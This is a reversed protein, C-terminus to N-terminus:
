RGGFSAALGPQGALHRDLIRTAVDVSSVLPHLALAEVAKARSGSLAADVALREAARVALILGRAEMPVDGIAAPVIAGRGVIAPVEVIADADLFPLSSRNPVDLIMTRYGGGRMADVLDLALRGYDGSERAAAVGAMADERGLWAEAMYRAEREALTREWDRLADTPSGVGAFFASQQKELYEARVQGGRMAELAASNFYFYYLYENPIMGVSRLWEAGFLRGEEFSELREDDALLNPLLDHGGDLV